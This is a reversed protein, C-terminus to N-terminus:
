VNLKESPPSLMGHNEYINEPKEIELRLKQLLVYNEEKFHKQWYSLFFIKNQLGM